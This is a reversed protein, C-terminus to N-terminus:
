KNLNSGHAQLRKVQKNAALQNETNRQSQFIYFVFVHLEQTQKNQLQELSKKDTTKRVLM